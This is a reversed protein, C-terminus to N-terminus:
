PAEKKKRREERARELLPEGLRQRLSPLRRLEPILDIARVVDRAAEPYADAGRVLLPQDIRREARACLLDALVLRANRLTPCLRQGREALAIQADLTPALEARFVVM